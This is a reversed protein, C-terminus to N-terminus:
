YSSLLLMNGVIQTINRRFPRFDTNKAMKYEDKNVM